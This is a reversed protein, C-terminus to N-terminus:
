LLVYGRIVGETVCCWSIWINSLIKHKLVLFATELGLKWM